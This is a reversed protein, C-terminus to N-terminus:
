SDENMRMLEIIKCNVSDKDECTPFEFCVIEISRSLRFKLPELTSFGTYESYMKHFVTM